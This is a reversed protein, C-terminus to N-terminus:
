PNLAARLHYMEEELEAPSSVTNAVESRVLQRYRLRMRHVAVAVAQSTSGLRAAVAAYDGEDPEDTLFKKLEEFQAPRNAAIMETQLRTMAAELLKVAWRQDFLKDPSLNSSPEICQFQEPSIADLSFIIKGGGRKAARARDRENALFHTLATLLFTRFKGRRADVARFDNRELLRTFFQQTLDKADEEALGKRRLFAYLPFWYTRCLKELAVVAASSPEGGAQVVVSWHTTAFAPSGVSFHEGKAKLNAM